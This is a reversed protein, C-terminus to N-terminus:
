QSTTLADPMVGEILIAVTTEIGEEILIAVTTEIGGKGSDTTGATTERVEAGTNQMTFGTAIMGEIWVTENTTFVM